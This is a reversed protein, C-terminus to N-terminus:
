EGGRVTGSSSEIRLQKRPRRLNDSHSVDPILDIAFGEKITDRLTSHYRRLLSEDLPCFLVVFRSILCDQSPIDNLLNQFFYFSFFSDLHWRPHTLKCSAPTIHCCPTLLAHAIFLLFDSFAGSPNRTELDTFAITCSRNGGITFDFWVPHIKLLIILSSGRSSKNKEDFFSIVM